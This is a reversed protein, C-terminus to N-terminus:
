ENKQIKEIQNKVKLLWSNTKTVNNRLNNGYEEREKKYWELKTRAGLNLSTIHIKQATLFNISKQSKKYKWWSKLKCNIENLM